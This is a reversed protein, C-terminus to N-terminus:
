TKPTQDEHIKHKIAVISSDIEENLLNMVDATETEMYNMLSEHLKDSKKIEFEDDLLLETTIVFKVTGKLVEWVLKKTKEPDVTGINHLAM